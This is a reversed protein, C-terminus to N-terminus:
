PSTIDAVLGERGLERLLSLSRTGGGTRLGPDSHRDSIKKVTIIFCIAAVGYLLYLIGNLYYTTRFDRPTEASMWRSAIGNDM